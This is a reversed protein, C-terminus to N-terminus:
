LDVMWEGSTPWPLRAKSHQTASYTLIDDWVRYACVHQLVDVHQSQVNWQRSDVHQSQANLKLWCASDACGLPWENEIWALCMCTAVHRFHRPFERWKRGSSNMVYPNYISWSSDDLRCRTVLAHGIDLDSHNISKVKVQGQSSWSKVKGCPSTVSAVDPSTM